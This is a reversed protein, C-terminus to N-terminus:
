PRRSLPGLDRQYNIIWSIGFKDVLECYYGSWPAETPPNKVDAGKELKVFIQDVEEQSVTNIYIYVNNGVVVNNADPLLIDSAMITTGNGVDLVMFAIKSQDDSTLSKAMKPNDGYRLVALFEGGFAEKYFTLAEEAHGNFKLYSNVTAM